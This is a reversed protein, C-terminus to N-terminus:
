GQVVHSTGRRQVLHHHSTEARLWMVALILLYVIEDHQGSDDDDYDGVAKTMKIIMKIMKIMMM